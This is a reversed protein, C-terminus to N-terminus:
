LVKKYFRKKPPSKKVAGSIAKTAADTAAKASNGLSSILNSAAAIPREIDEAIDEGTKLVRNLKDLAKKLDRLIFFVQIGTITLFISLLLILFILVIQLLDM